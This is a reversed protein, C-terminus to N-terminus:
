GKFIGSFLKKVLGEKKEEKVVKDKAKGFYAEIAKEGGQLVDSKQGNESYPVVKIGDKCVNKITHMWEDCPNKKLIKEVWAFAEKQKGMRLLHLVKMAEVEKCAPETCFYCINTKDNKALLEDLEEATATFYKEVFQVELEIKDMEYHLNVGEKRKAERFDILKKAYKMAVEDNGALAASFILDCYTGSCDANPDMLLKLEIEKEFSEIGKGADGCVMETWALSDYYEKKEAVKAANEITFLEQYWQKLVREANEKDALKHYIEVEQEYRAFPDTYAAPLAKLADEVRGARVLSHAYRRVYYRNQQIEEGGVELAKEYAEVAMKPLGLLTYMDAMDCYARAYEKDFYLIAKKICVLAKEYEMQLKYVFSLGNYAYPNGPEDALANEYDEIAKEYECADRHLLAREVFMYPGPYSYLCENILKLGPEYLSKDGEGVKELYNARYDELMADVKDSDLKEHELLYEYAELYPSKVDAKKAQELINKLDEKQEFDLYVKAIREYAKPYDPFHRICEYGCNIVGQADWMRNYAKQASAYAAFIQYKEILEMSVELSKEYEEMDLYIQAKELKINYDPREENSLEEVIEIYEIAKKFNEADKFGLRGYCYARISYSQRVRDKDKKKEEEKEDESYSAIKKELAKEWIEAMELAKVYEASEVYLKTLLGKYEADKEETILSEMDLAHQIGECYRSDQLLCWGLELGSEADPTEAYKKVLEKELEENIRTLLERMEDEGGLTLVEEACKKADKFYKQEYYWETLRRNAMYHKKNSEKLKKYIEASEEKKEARWFAEATHFSVMLDSEYEQYLKKLWELAEETKGQEEWLRARNIEMVPHRIDLDDANKILEEAQELQKAALAEWCRDSYQIFLDYDADPAGEFQDFEFDEGQRCRNVVYNMFDAPFFERFRGNNEVIHLKEQILKWAATPLKFHEMLFRLLKHTCNEEEALDLLVDEEFLEEWCAINRRKDMNAYVAAIKEVWLGSPTEDREEEVVEQEPEQALNCAEEYANRLRKFGEPNDEPNTVALKERYAKKILNEDKTEEIGLVQFIETKNM